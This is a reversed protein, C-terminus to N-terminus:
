STNSLKKGNYGSDILSLGWLSSLLNNIGDVALSQGESHVEEWGEKVLGVKALLESVLVIDTMTKTLLVKSHKEKCKTGRGNVDIYATRLQQMFANLAEEKGQLYLYVNKCRNGPAFSRKKKKTSNEGMEYFLKGTLCLDRAMYKLTNM